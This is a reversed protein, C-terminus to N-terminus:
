SIITGTAYIYDSVAPAVTYTVTVGSLTYGVGQILPYNDWVTNTTPPTALATGGNTLTFVRNVGDQTGSPIGAFPVTTNGSGTGGVTQDSLTLTQIQAGSYTITYQGAAMYAATEGLGNTYQPNAAVTGTSTSYVTALTLGPQVYYTVAVNPIAQGIASQVTDDRRYYTPM